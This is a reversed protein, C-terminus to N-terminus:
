TTRMFYKYGFLVQRCTIGVSTHTRSCSFYAPLRGLVAQNIAIVRMGNAIILSKAADNLSSNFTTSVLSGTADACHVPFGGIIPNLTQSAAAIYAIRSM